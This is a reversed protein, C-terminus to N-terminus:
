RTTNTTGHTPLENFPIKSLDPVEGEESDQTGLRGRRTKDFTSSDLSGYPIGRAKLEEPTIIKYPPVPSASRNRESCTSTSLAVRFIIAIILYVPWFVRKNPSSSSDASRRYHLERPPGAQGQDWSPTNSSETRVTQTSSTSVIAAPLSAALEAPLTERMQPYCRWLRAASTRLMEVAATGESSSWDFSEQGGRLLRQAWFFKWADPVPKILEGIAAHNEFVQMFVDRQQNGLNAYALDALPAAVKRDRLAVTFALRCAVMGGEPNSIRQRHMMMFRSLSMIADYRGQSDLRDIVAFTAAAGDHEIEFLLAEPKLRLDQNGRHTHILDAMARGWAITQDPHEYLVAEAQRVLDPVGLPPEANLATELRDLVERVALEGASPGAVATARPLRGAVEGDAGTKSVPPITATTAAPEITAPPGHQEKWELEALAMSYAEHLRQFGEPDQDPRCTKLRRAYARKVDRVTAVAPNLELTDWPM